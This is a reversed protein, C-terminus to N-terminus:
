LTKLLTKETTETRETTLCDPEGVFKSVGTPNAIRGTKNLHVHREM